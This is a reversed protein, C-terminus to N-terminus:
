SWIVTLWNWLDYCKLGYENSNEENAAFIERIEKIAAAAAVLAESTWEVKYHTWYVYIIHLIHSFLGEFHLHALFFLNWLVKPISVSNHLCFNSSFRRLTYYIPPSSSSSPTYLIIRLILNYLMNICTFTHLVLLGGYLRSHAVSVSM